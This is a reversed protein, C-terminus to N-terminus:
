HKQKRTKTPVIEDLSGPTLIFEQDDVEYQLVQNKSSNQSWSKQPVKWVTGTNQFESRSEDSDTHFDRLDGESEPAWSAQRRSKPM